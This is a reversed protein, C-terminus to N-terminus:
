KGDKLRRSLIYKEILELDDLWSYEESDLSDVDVTGDDRRENNKDYEAESTAKILEKCSPDYKVFDAALMLNKLNIRAQLASIDKKKIENKGYTIRDNKRLKNLRGVVLYTIRRVLIARSLSEKFDKEASDIWITMPLGHQDHISEAFRLFETIYDEMVYAGGSKGNKHYYTKFIEIGAFGPLTGRATFVTADTMGYDAGIDIKLYTSDCVGVHKQIDFKKYITGALNAPLGLYISKYQEYDIDQLAEIEQIAYRGLWEQQQWKPLDNYNTHKVYADERQAMKAVWEYTWHTVKPHPNFEYLIMFYDKKGRIFASIAQNMEYEDKFQTIEFMWLVKIQNGAKHPRIGKTSEIDNVGRFHVYNGQPLRMYLSGSNGTPYDRKPKLQYGLREFGVKLGAFTTDRHDVHNQRIVAVECTPDQLMLMAIKIENKSSKASNRGGKDIQHLARSNFHDLHPEGVIESIRITQRM